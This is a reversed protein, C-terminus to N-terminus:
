TLCKQEGSVTPNEAPRPPRLRPVPRPVPSPEFVRRPAPVPRGEAETGKVKTTPRDGNIVNNTLKQDEKQTDQDEEESEDFPNPPSSSRPERQETEANSRSEPQERVAEEIESIEKEEREPIIEVDSHAAKSELSTSHPDKPSTSTLTVPRNSLDSHGNRNTSVSRTFHHTCVLSGPDETFKYSGPLLTRSCERCRFNFCFNESLFPHCSFNNIKQM